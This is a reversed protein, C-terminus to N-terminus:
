ESRYSALVVGILKGEAPEGDDGIRSVIVEHLGSGNRERTCLGRKGVRQNPAIAHPVVCHLVETLPVVAAFQDSAAYGPVPGFPAEGGHRKGLVAEDTFVGPEVSYRIRLFSSVSAAMVLATGSLEVLEDATIPPTGKGRFLPILKVILSEPIPKDGQPYPLEHHRYGNTSAYGCARALAARSWGARERLAQLKERPLKGTVAIKRARAPTKAKLASRTKTQTGM